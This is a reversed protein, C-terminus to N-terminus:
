VGKYRYVGHPIYGQDVASQWLHYIVDPTMLPASHLGVFSFAVPRNDLGYERSTVLLEGHVLMGAAVRHFAVQVDYITKEKAERNFLNALRVFFPKEAAVPTINRITGQIQEM